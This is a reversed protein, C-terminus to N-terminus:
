KKRKQPDVKRGSENNRDKRDKERKKNEEKV